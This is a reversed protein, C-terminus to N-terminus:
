WVSLCTIITEKEQSLCQANRRSIFGIIIFPSLCYCKPYNNNTNLSQWVSYLWSPSMYRRLKIKQRGINLNLKILVLSHKSLQSHWWDIEEWFLALPCSFTHYWSIPAKVHCLCWVSVMIYKLFTGYRQANECSWHAVFLNSVMLLTISFWVNFLYLIQSCQSNISIHWCNQKQQQYIEYLNLRM